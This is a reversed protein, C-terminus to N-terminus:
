MKSILHRYNQAVNDTDAKFNIRKTIPTNIIQLMELMFRRKYNNERNLVSTDQFNPFHNLSACHSTLATKQTSIYRYKQDSKHGAIRTKLKNKTTGVYVMNCSERDNGRCPIKYVINSIDFKDIRDKTKSFLRGLTHTTKHAMKYNNTDFIKSKELRESFGPVYTLSKFKKPEVTRSQNDQSKDEYQRILRNVLGIPFNNDMLLTRIKDKNKRHYKTDSIKLVREILNRATNLVMRKPHKSHYNIIRGSATPKQYWDVCLNDGKRIVMTDLYTLRSESEEEITFRINPHFKNFTTLMNDIASESVICFIDDVYKTILKPKKDLEEICSDLLNEMVIDAVIPSAPSGMPLGEQQIYIKDGYQFYRNDEICFKVIYLFLSKNISTHQEIRDWKEEIIHLALDVPISPFLNVVDFSVLKECNQIRQEKIKGKFQLSDKVNYKSDETIRKLINTIYRCLEYSPSNVFSCIPRLPFDEKHIKPVGYLRPAISVNTKLKNKEMQSINGAKYLKEVIDNNLKQLKGTPDKDILKYKATDGVINNIRSIYDSKSIAVTANGKDANVILIDNNEKLYKKAKDVKDLVFKDMNTLKMKNMQSDIITTLKTRAIEQEEKVQLTQVLDEGEAIINMVPLQERKVPLAHKKGLSLIWQVEKPIEKDTKNVFWKSNLKIGLKREQLDILCNFKRKHVEKVKENFSTGLRAEYELFERMEEGTFHQSLNNIVVEIEHEAKILLQHKERLTLNLIKNHLDQTYGIIIQRFKPLGNEGFINLVNKTSNMIFKPIIGSKRCRILFTITQKIRIIKDRMTKFRNVWRKAQNNKKFKNYNM